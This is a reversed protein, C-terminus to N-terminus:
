TNYLEQDQAQAGQHESFCVARLETSIDQMPAGFTVKSALLEKWQGVLFISLLNYRFRLTCSLATSTQVLNIQTSSNETAIKEGRNGQMSVRAEDKERLCKHQQHALQRASFQGGSSLFFIINQSLSSFMCSVLLLPSCSPFLFLCM